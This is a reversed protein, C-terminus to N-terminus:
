KGTIQQEDTTKFWRKDDYDTVLRQAVEASKDGM